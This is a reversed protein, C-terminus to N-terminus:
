CQRHRHGKLGSGCKGIIAGLTATGQDPGYLVRGPMQVRGHLGSDGGTLRSVLKERRRQAIVLVPCRLWIQRFAPVGRSVPQGHRQLQHLARGEM